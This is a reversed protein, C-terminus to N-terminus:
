EVKLLALGIGTPTDGAGFGLDAPRVLNSVRFELNLVHDPDIHDVPVIATLEARDEIAYTAVPVGNAAITLQQPSGETAKFAPYVVATIFVYRNRTFFVGSVNAAVEGS